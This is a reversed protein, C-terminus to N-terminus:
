CEVKVTKANLHELQTQVSPPSVFCNIGRHTGVHNFIVISLTIFAVSQSLGVNNHYITYINHYFFRNAIIQEAEIVAIKMFIQCGISSRVM